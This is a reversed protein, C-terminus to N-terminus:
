GPVTGCEGLALSAISRACRVSEGAAPFLPALIAWEPDAMDSAPCLSSLPLGTRNRKFRM